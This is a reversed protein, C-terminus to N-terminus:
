MNLSSLICAIVIRPRIGSSSMMVKVASTLWSSRPRPAARKGAIPAPADNLGKATGWPISFVNVALPIDTGELYSRSIEDADSVSAGIGAIIM